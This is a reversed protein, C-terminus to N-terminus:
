RGFFAIVIGALANDAFLDEVRDTPKARPSKQAIEEVTQRRADCIWTLAGLDDVNRILNRRPSTVPVSGDPTM